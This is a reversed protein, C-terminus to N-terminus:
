GGLLRREVGIGEGVGVESGGVEGLGMAGIGVM